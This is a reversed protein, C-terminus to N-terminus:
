EADETQQALWSEVAARHYYVRNGVFTRQPGIRLSAWRELARLSVHLEDALEPRTYYEALIEHKKGM